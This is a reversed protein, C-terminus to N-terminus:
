SRSAPASSTSTAPSGSAGPRSGSRRTPTPSSRTRRSSGRTQSRPGIGLDIGLLYMWALELAADLGPDAASSAAAAADGATRGDTLGRRHSSVLYLEFTLHGRSTDPAGGDDPKLSTTAVAIAPTRGGLEQWLLDIGLEDHPGKISFGIPIVAELWGGGARTLPQLKAILANRVLTRTPTPLGSDYTWTMPEM